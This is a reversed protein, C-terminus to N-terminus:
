QRRRADCRQLFQMVCHAVRRCALRQAFHERM